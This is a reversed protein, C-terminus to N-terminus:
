AQTGPGAHNLLESNQHILSEQSNVASVSLACLFTFSKATLQTFILGRLNFSSIVKRFVEAFERGGQHVVSASALRMMKRRLPVSNSQIQELLFKKIRLEHNSPVFKRSMELQNSKYDIAKDLLM